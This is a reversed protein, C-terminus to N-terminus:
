HENTRDLRYGVRYVSTLKWGLSGDLKLKKRLRSAHTDITRTDIENNLGWVKELLHERSLLAGQNQFLEVALDFEKQTMDVVRGDVEFRQQSLDYNYHDTRRHPSHSIHHRRALANVRAALEARRSTKVLYDDAGADLAAVVTAEDDCATFVLIPIDWGLNDRIWLILDPGSADPLMWDIMLLDFRDPEIAEKFAQATSFGRAQHQMSEAWLLLLDLQDANDEVIGLNM